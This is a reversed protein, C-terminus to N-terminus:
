QPYDPTPVFTAEFLSNAGVVRTAGQDPNANLVVQVQLTDGSALDYDGAVAAAGVANQDPGCAHAPGTIAAGGNVMVRLQATIGAAYTGQVPNQAAIQTYAKLSYKGTKTCTITTTGSGTWGDATGLTITLATWTGPTPTNNGLTGAAKHYAAPFKSPTYTM